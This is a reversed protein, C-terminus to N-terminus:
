VLHGLVRDLWIKFTGWTTSDVEERRLSNWHSIIRMTFLRGRTGLRFRGLLLRYGNGRRKEEHSRTFVSDGDEKCGGKSYQFM